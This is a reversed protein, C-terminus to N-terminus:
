GLRVARGYLEALERLRLAHETTLEAETFRWRWNGSPRSPMNMRAESGLGLVDQLPAIAVGAVSAFLTRLMDWHIAKGDTALYRGAFHLEAAVDEQSRTSDATGSSNWWGVCTDNDHTGTYAVLGPTLNHPRFGDGQADRGFAFQLIAMGPYGFRERLAEVEATILGLNEAVLPLPGLAREAAEFLAAGPGKVWRGNVATLEGGPIEWYAEFGRFHDLRVLDFQTFAQRLREIWWAYGSRELTDWRYLPNGWCQGTASFYDPPVGAIFAPRGDAALRFLDPHSWVDASDHAVFIPLDGMVRIGHVRCQERVRRWQLAAAWQTFREAEIAAAHRARAAALAQPDRQALAPEWENWPGGGHADKLAVFLAYDDLWSAQAGCFGAFDARALDDARRAFHAAARALLPRKYAQAAGFDCEREPFAPHGALEPADLFGEEVLEDLSVLLPNLAFSSFCQYPSDGYGTPGLPLVQWLGLRAQALFEVFRRASRGLDGLGAGGPLSTPHLLVGGSRPLNV